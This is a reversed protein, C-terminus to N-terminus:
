WVSQKLNEVNVPVEASEIRRPTSQFSEVGRICKESEFDVRSCWFAGNFGDSEEGSWPELCTVLEGRSWDGNDVRNSLNWCSRV